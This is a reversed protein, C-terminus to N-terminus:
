LLFFFFVSKENFIRRKKPLNAIYNRKKKKKFFICFLLSLFLFFVMLERIKRLMWVLPNRVFWLPFLSLCWVFSLLVWFFSAGESSSQCFFALVSCLFVWRSGYFSGKWWIANNLEFFRWSSRYQSNLHEFSSFDLIWSWHVFVVM